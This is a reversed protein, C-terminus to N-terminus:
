LGWKLPSARSPAAARAAADLEQREQRATLWGEFRARSPEDEFMDAPLAGKDSQALPNAGRRVLECCLEVDEYLAASHLATEGDEDAFDLRAGKALLEDLLARHIDQKDDGCYYGLLHACPRGWPDLAGPDFDPHRAIALSLAGLNKLLATEFLTAASEADANLLRANPNGGRELVWLALTERRSAAAMALACWVPAGPCPNLLPESLLRERQPSQRLLDNWIVILEEDSLRQDFAARMIKQFVPAKPRLHWAGKPAGCASRAKALAASLAEDSLDLPARPATPM